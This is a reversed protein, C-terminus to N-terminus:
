VPAVEDTDVAEVANLRSQFLYQPMSWTLTLLIKITKKSPVRCQCLVSCCIIQRHDLLLTMTGLLHHCEWICTQISIEFCLNAGATLQQGKQM